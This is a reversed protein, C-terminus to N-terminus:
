KQQGLYLIKHLNTAPVLKIFPTRKYGFYATLDDLDFWWDIESVRFDSSCCERITYITKENIIYRSGHQKVIAENDVWVCLLKDGEKFM